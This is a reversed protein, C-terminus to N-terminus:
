SMSNFYEPICANETLNCRINKSDTYKIAILGKNELKQLANVYSSFESSNETTDINITNHTKVNVISKKLLDHFLCQLTQRDFNDNFEFLSMISMEFDDLQVKNSM